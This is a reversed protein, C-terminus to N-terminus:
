GELWFVAVPFSVAAMNSDTNRWAFFIAANFAQGSGPAVPVTPARPEVAKGGHDCSQGCGHSFLSFFDPWASTQSRRIRRLITM